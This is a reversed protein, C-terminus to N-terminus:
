PVSIYIICWSSIEIKYCFICSDQLLKLWALLPSHSYMEMHPLAEGAARSNAEFVAGVLSAEFEKHLIHQTGHRPHLEINTTPSTTNTTQLPLPAQNPALPKYIYIYISPSPILLPLYSLILIHHTVYTPGQNPCHDLYSSLASTNAQRWM